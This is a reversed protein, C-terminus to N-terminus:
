ALIFTVLNGLGSFFYYVIDEVEIFKIYVGFLNTNM